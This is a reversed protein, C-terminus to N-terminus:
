AGPGAAAAKLREREKAGGARIFFPGLCAFLMLGALILFAIRYSGTADYIFGALPSASIVLPLEVVRLVGIAAGFSVSGMAASVAFTRLPSMGSYGFGYLCAAGISLIFDDAYAFLILSLGQCILALWITIRAGLYDSMWGVVPKGMASFLATASLILAASQASIGIDMLHGFLHLMTASYVCGMSGFILAIAWMAPTKLMEKWHWVRSDEAVVVMKEPHSDVYRRGDRVEGIDQPRDVMLFYVLPLLTVATVAAFVTFGGRWGVSEVLATVLPPMMVGALSAGLVAFAIARGRWHDFWSIVTRHWALGGMCSMGVGMGVGVILYYQWLADTLALLFYSAAVVLIGILVVRKPSFRDLLAGLYPSILAGTVGAVSFGMAIAFRSGGALDEALSPLFVGRSYSYFGTGLFGLMASVAVIVWGYFFPLKKLRVGPNGFARGHPDMPGYACAEM